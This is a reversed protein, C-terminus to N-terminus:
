GPGVVWTNRMEWISWQGAIACYLTIADGKAPTSSNQIGNNTLLSAFNIKDGTAPIVKIFATTDDIFVYMMGVVATPLNFHTDNSTGQFVITQGSENATLTYNTTKTKGPYYIGSTTQSFHFVNNNDVELGYTNDTSNYVGLQATMNSISAKANPIVFLMLALFLVILKRM